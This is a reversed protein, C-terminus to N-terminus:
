AAHKSRSFSPRQSRSNLGTEDNQQRNNRKAEREIEGMILYRFQALGLKRSQSVGYVVRKSLLLLKGQVDM